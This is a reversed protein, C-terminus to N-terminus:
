EGEDQVKAAEDPDARGAPISTATASVPDSGPFTQELGEQLNSKRSAQERQEQKLSDVAPSSNDSKM